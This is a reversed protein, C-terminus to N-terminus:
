LWTDVPATVLHQIGREWLTFRFFPSTWLGDGAKAGGHPARASRQEPGCLLMSLFHIRRMSARTLRFWLMRALVSTRLPDTRLRWFHREVPGASRGNTAPEVRAGLTRFSAGRARHASEAHATGLVHASHFAPIDRRLAHRWEREVYPSRRAANSWCLQFIDAEDIKNLLTESWSQGSRLLRVDRLYQFGLVRYAKELEDVVM